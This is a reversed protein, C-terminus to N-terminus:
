LEVIMSKMRCNTFDVAFSSSIFPLLFQHIWSKGAADLINPGLVVVAAVDDVACTHFLISIVRIEM